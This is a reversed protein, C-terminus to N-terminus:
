CSKDQRAGKPWKKLVQTAIKKIQHQWLGSLNSEIDVQSGHVYKLNHIEKSKLLRNFWRRHRRSATSAEVWISQKERVTLVECLQNISDGAVWYQEAERLLRWYDGSGTLLGYPIRQWVGRISDATAASTRPNLSIVVRAVGQMALELAQQLLRQNQQANGALLVLLRDGDGAPWLDSSVVNTKIEPVDVLSGQMVVVNEGQYGDHEPVILVSFDNRAIRPDLIQINFVGPYRQKLFRSIGASQRGAGIIIAPTNGAAPENLGRDAWPTIRPALWRQIAPPQINLTHVPMDALEDSARRLGNLLAQCQRWHGLRGDNLMWISGNKRPSNM